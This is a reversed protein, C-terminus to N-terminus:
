QVLIQLNQPPGPPITTNLMLTAKTFNVRDYEPWGSWIMWMTLGDASTWKQTFQYTFKWLNDKFQGYYISKWPGWLTSGEFIGLESTNQGKAYIFKNIGPNYSVNVHYAMGAPDQFVPQKMAWNASWIPNGTGDLGNFYSYASRIFLQAKPVRGLYVNKGSTDKGSKRGSLYVYFYAADVGPPVNSYGPGFQAIGVVYVGDAALDFVKPLSFDWTLGNDSSKGGYTGNWGDDPTSYFLYMTQNSDAVFGMPKRNQDNGKWMDTGSLTPPNGTIKTVGMFFKTTGSWGNGDGWVGYIAGDDAWTLPWQDSGNAHFFESSFDFTLSGIKTSDPYPSAPAASTLLPYLAIQSTFALIFVQLISFYTRRNKM